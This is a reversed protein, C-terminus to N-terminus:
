VPPDLYGAPVQSDKSNNSRGQQNEEFPAYNNM